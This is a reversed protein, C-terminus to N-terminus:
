SPTRPATCYAGALFILPNAGSDKESKCLTFIYIGSIMLDSYETQM